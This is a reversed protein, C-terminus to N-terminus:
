LTRVGGSRQGHKALGDSDSPVVKIFEQWVPIAEEFQKNSLLTYGLVKYAVTLRPDIAITKRYAELSEDPQLSFEYSEGLSLRARVFKPDMEVARDLSAIGGKADQKHFDSRAEDFARSADPKKSYPLNRMVSVDFHM